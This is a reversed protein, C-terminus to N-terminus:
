RRFLRAVGRAQHADVVGALHARLCEISRLRQYGAVGVDACAECAGRALLFIVQGPRLRAKRFQVVANRQEIREPEGSRKRNADGCAQGAVPHIQSEDLVSRPM